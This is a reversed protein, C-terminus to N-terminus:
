SYRKMHEVYIGLINVDHGPTSNMLNDNNRKECMISIANPQLIVTRKYIM